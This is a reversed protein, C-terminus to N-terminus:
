GLSEVIKLTKSTKTETEAIVKDVFDKGMEATLIAKYKPSKRGSVDFIASLKGQEITAGAKLELELLVMKDKLNKQKTKIEAELRKLNALKTQSVVITEATQIGSKTKPM